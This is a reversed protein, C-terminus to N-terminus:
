LAMTAHRVLWLVIGCLTTPRACDGLISSTSMIHAYRAYSLAHACVFFIFFRVLLAHWTHICAPPSRRPAHLAPPGRRRPRRRCAKFGRDCNPVADQKLPEKMHTHTHTHTHTYMRTHIYVYICVCTATTTTAAAAAPECHGPHTCASPYEISAKGENQPSACTRLNRLHALGM